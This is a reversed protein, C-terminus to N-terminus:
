FWAKGVKHIHLHHLHRGSIKARWIPHNRRVTSGWHGGSCVYPLPTGHVEPSTGQGLVCRIGDKLRYGWPVNRNHIGNNGNRPLHKTLRLRTVAHSWPMSMCALKRVGKHKFCPDLILNRHFCRWANRQQSGISGTWCYGRWTREVHLYPKLHGDRTFPHVVRVKTERASGAWGPIGVQVVLLVVAIGCLLMWRRRDM